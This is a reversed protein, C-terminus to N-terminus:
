SSFDWYLSKLVKSHLFCENKMRWALHEAIVSEDMTKMLFHARYRNYPLAQGLYYEFAARGEKQLIDAADSGIPLLVVWVDFGNRSLAEGVQFAARQGQGRQDADFIIRVREPKKKRLALMHKQSFGTCGGIATGNPLGHSEAVLKNIISEYLDWTHVGDPIRDAGFHIHDGRWCMHRSQIGDHVSRTYLDYVFGRDSLPVVVREYFRDRGEPFKYDRLLFSKQILFDLSYGKERLYDRLVTKGPAYGIGYKAM